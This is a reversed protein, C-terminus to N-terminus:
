HTQQWQRVLEHLDVPSKASRMQERMGADNFMAAIKALAQLHEETSEEPVVMAFLLDVPQNDIADYDIAHDLKILAGLTITGNKLRGHPIAVGHGVGTGGLRERNLLSDFVESSTIRGESGAILESLEELARKKSNAGVNCAIRELPILETLQM